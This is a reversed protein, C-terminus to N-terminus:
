RPVEAWEATGIDFLYIRGGDHVLSKAVRRAEDDTRAVVPNHAHSFDGQGATSVVGVVYATFTERSRLILVDGIKTPRSERPARPM